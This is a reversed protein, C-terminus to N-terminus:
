THIYTYTHIYPLILLYISPRIVSPKRSPHAQNMIIAKRPDNSPEVVGAPGGPANHEITTEVPLFGLNLAAGLSM